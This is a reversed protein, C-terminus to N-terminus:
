FLSINIRLYINNLYKPLILEIIFFLQCKKKHYCLIEIPHNIKKYQLINKLNKGKKLNVKIKFFNYNIM